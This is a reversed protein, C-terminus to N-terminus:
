RFPIDVSFTFLRTEDTEEKLLPIGFDFALPAPSLREIYIRFGFGASVRYKEISLDDDVTGTDIFLVGALLDDYLPHRLEAGAFFSFTGGVPEDTIGGARNIGVPSVGRFDFARFNQGGLFYQEYFPVEESDQLIHAAKTTLQLVTKRGLVDEALSAYVSYEGRISTFSYDGGVQEVGFETRSGKSPRTFDDTSSRVLNLGLGYILSAEAVEFYETPADSDINSLEVSEIRLPVSASWRSGFRRGLSFKTGYRTEDYASYFRSLYSAQASGAYDTDFLYPDSLLISFLQRQTGPSATITFTQGGGRFADGRLFEGFTDPTDSVDFNRQQLSVIASLGSDSNVAGGINFSGTNTEKVEVLVDRVGPEEPDEPQVTVKASGPEFLNTRKLRRQTEEIQTGDTNRQPLFQVERRVVDDRTLTNGRVLVQGTKFTEGESIILWLDVRPTTLDRQERKRVEADVYGLKQYAAKVAELSQRLRRDSYVGGEKISMIGKLQEVTFVKEAEPGFVIKVDRLSYVPGEEIIFTVIAEGGDPSPTIMRDCRVDLYGRDRYYTVLNAVDDALVENDLQGRVFLWAEKTKVATKLERATFSVNGDFRILSVKTKAGERVKFLVINNTLLEKEDVTVLCNYYGKDRYKDEIRRAARDLRTTDIPTGELVDIFKGLDQDSFEKNGVTQVSRIIPQLNLTYILDVSGDALLRIASEVRRFRGLRNLRAIDESALEASFPMGAKLRLQNGILDKTAADLVPLPAPPVDGLPGDAEGAPKLPDPVAPEIPKPLPANEFKVERIPRGEYPELEPPISVKRTPPAPPAAEGAPRAGNQGTGVQGTGEQGAGGGAAGAAGAPKVEGTQSWAPEAMPGFGISGALGAAALLRWVRRNLSAARQTTAANRGGLNLTTAPILHPSFVVALGSPCVWVAGIEVESQAFPRKGM